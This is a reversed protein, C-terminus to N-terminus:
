LLFFHAISDQLLINGWESMQGMSCCKWSNQRAGPGRGSFFFSPYAESWLQPLAQPMSNQPLIKGLGLMFNIKISYYITKNSAVLINLSVINDSECIPHNEMFKLVDKLCVFNNLLYIIFLIFDTAILIKVTKIKWDVRVSETM